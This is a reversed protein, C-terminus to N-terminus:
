NIWKEDLNIISHEFLKLSYDVFQAVLNIVNFGAKRLELEDQLLPSKSTIGSAM